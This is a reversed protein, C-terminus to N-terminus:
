YRRKGVCSSQRFCRSFTLHSPSGVHGYQPASVTQSFVSCSRRERKCHQDHLFDKLTVTPVINWLLWMSKCRQNRSILRMNEALFPSEAMCAARQRSSRRGVTHLMICLIRPAIFSLPSSSEPM